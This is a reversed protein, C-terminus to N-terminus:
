KIFTTKLNPEDFGHIIHLKTIGALYTNITASGVNRDNVLWDIFIITERQRWPFPLHSNTQDQCLAWMREATKYSNWTKQSLGFNGLEQM